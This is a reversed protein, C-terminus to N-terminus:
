SKSLNVSQAGNITYTHILFLVHFRAHVSPASSLALQLRDLFLLSFPVVPSLSACCTDCLLRCRVFLVVGLGLDATMRSSSSLVTCVVNAGDMRENLPMPFALCPLALCVDSLANKKKPLLFGRSDRRSKANEAVTREVPFSGSLADPTELRPCAKQRSLFVTMSHVPYLFKYISSSHSAARYCRQTSIPSKKEKARKEMRMVEEAQARLIISPLAEAFPLNREMCGLESTGRQWTSSREFRRRGPLLFPSLVATLTRPPLLFLILKKKPPGYASEDTEDVM